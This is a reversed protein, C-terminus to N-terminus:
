AKLKRQSQKKYYSNYYNSASGSIRNMLLGCIRDAGIKQIAERVLAVDTKRSRVVFLTLDCLPALLNADSLALVPPSDIVIWDFVSEAQHILRELESVNSLQSPTDPSCGSPLFHLDVDACKHLSGLLDPTTVMAPQSGNGSSERPPTFAHGGLLQELGVANQPVGLV